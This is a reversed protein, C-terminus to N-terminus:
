TNLKNIITEKIKNSSVCKPFKSHILELKNNILINIARTMVSQSYGNKIITKFLKNTSIMFDEFNNCIKAYRILQSYTVNLILSSRVNSDKHFLSNVNFNFQERKDFLAMKYKNCDLTVTTDLYNVSTGTEDTDAELELETPYINISNQLFNSDNIALIDDQYRIAVRNLTNGNGPDGLINNRNKHEFAILCLDCLIASSTSGMPIGKIQRFILDGVKVFTNSLLSNLMELIEKMSLNIGRKDYGNNYTCRSAEVRLHTGTKRNFCKSSIYSIAEMISTYSFSTFVSKFDYTNINILANEAKFSELVQIYEDTSKVSNIKICNKYSNDLNIICLFHKRFHLLISTLTKTIFNLSTERCNTIPRTKLHPGKKHFKPILYYTPLKQHINGNGFYRYTLESHLKLIDSSSLNSPEFTDNGSIIIDNAENNIRIGLDECLKYIYFNKCIIATNNTCKDVPCLIFNKSIKKAINQVKGLNCNHNDIIYGRRIKNIIMEIIEANARKLLNLCKEKSNRTKRCIYLANKEENKELDDKIKQINLNETVRFNNGNYLANKIINPLVNLNGTSLHKEKTDKADYDKCCNPLRKLSELIKQKTISRSIRNQNHIVSSIKNNYSFSPLLRLPNQRNENNILEKSISRYIKTFPISDLIPHSHHVTIFIDSAKCKPKPKNGHLISESVYKLPHGLTLTHNLTELSRKNLTLINKLNNQMDSLINGIQQHNINKSSRKNMRDLKRRGHSRYKRIEKFNFYPHNNFNLPKQPCTKINGFYKIKQNLGIPYATNLLRIYFDEIDERDKTSYRKDYDLIYFNINNPNCNNTNYHNYLVQKNRTINSNQKALIAKRMQNLHEYWRKHAFRSSEGVYLMGCECELLYIINETKCNITKDPTCCIRTYKLYKSNINTKMNQCYKCNPTCPSITPLQHNCQINNTCLIDYKCFLKKNHLKATSTESLKVQKNNATYLSNQDTSTPHINPVNFPPLSSGRQRTEEM